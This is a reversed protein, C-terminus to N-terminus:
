CNMVKAYIDLQRDSISKVDHRMLGQNRSNTSLRLGIQPDLLIREVQYAGYEVDGSLFFLASKENEAIWSTGGTFSTVCPVGLYMPEALALCYSEVFGCVLSLECLQLEKIIQDARLSGLWDISDHIQLEKGLRNLWRVYGNQRIGKKQIHGAIHLRLEPYRPKLEALIRLAVHIGKYPPAGSSSFFIYPFNAKIREDKFNSWALARYFSSRLALDVHFQKASPNMSKVHASIWGSQVDIFSHGCIIEKEFRGWRTFDRKYSCLTKRKLIEKVSICQLLEKFTLDAMFYRAVTKKLGQIELLAPVTIYKRATLLGWFSEVGWVHVLDPKFQRCVSLIERVLVRSPLGDKGIPKRAPVLWQSIGCFDQRMFEIVDSFAIVGLEVQNTSLLSEAMSQIWTGTGSIDSDSLACNSFWLVKLM